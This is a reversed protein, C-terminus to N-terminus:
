CAPKLRLSITTRTRYRKGNVTYDVDLADLSADRTGPDSVVHVLLNYVGEPPDTPIDVETAPKRAKWSASNRPNTASDPPWQTSNGFLGDESFTIDIDTLRLNRPNVPTVATVRLPRDGRNNLATMAFTYHGKSGKLPMCVILEDGTLRMPGDTAPQEPSPHGSCGAAVAATAIAVAILNRPM